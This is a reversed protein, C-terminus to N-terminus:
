FNILNNQFIVWKYLPIEELVKNKYLNNMMDVQENDYPSLICYLVAKIMFPKRKELDNVINDSEAIALYYRSTKLYSQDQDL